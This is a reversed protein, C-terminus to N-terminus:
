DNLGKLSYSLSSETYREREAALIMKAAENHGNRIARQYPTLGRYQARVDAGYNLLMKIIKLQGQGAAAQLPTHNFCNPENPDARAELLLEVVRIHERFVAGHLATGGYRNGPADIDEAARILNPIIEDLGFSAAYYLPNYHRQYASWSDWNLAQVWSIYIKCEEAKFFKLIATNLKDPQGARVAHYPWSTSGYEMLPHKEVRELWETELDVPGHKFPTYSLYTLCLLALETNADTPKLAFGRAVPSEQIKSSLLYEKVSLHALAVEKNNESVRILSGCIDVIDQPSSLLSAEDIGSLGKEIAIAEYLEPLSLPLHNFSLWLLSRQV